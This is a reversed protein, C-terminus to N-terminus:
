EPKVFGGDITALAVNGFGTAALESFVYDMTPGEMYSGAGGSCHGIAKGSDLHLMPGGSDGQFIPIGVEAYTEDSNCRLVAGVRSNMLGTSYFPTGHGYFGVSEGAVLEACSLYGTPGPQSIEAPNAILNIGPDLQILTFDVGGGGVAGVGAPLPGDSDFVVTGIEGLDQGTDPDDLVVRTGTGDQTAGNASNICHAATGLYYTQQVPDVYLFGVTCGSPLIRSGPRLKAATVDGWVPKWVSPIPVPSPTPSPTPAPAPDPSPSPSPTPAPSPAPQPQALDAADVTGTPNGCGSLALASALGFCAPSFRRM